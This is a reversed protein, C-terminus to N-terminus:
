RFLSPWQNRLLITISLGVEESEKLYKERYPTSGPFYKVVLPTMEYGPYKRLFFKLFVDVRTLWLQTNESLTSGYARVLIGMSDMEIRRQFHTTLYFLNEELGVSDSITSTGSLFKIKVIVPQCMGYNKSFALLIIATITSISIYSNLKM